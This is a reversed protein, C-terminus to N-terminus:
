TGSVGPVIWPQKPRIAQPALVLHPQAPLASVALLCQFPRCLTRLFKLLECGATPPSCYLIWPEAEM